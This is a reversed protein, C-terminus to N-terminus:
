LHLSLSPRTHCGTAVSHAESSHMYLSRIAVTAARISLACLLMADYQLEGM